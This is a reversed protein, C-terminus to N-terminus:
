VERLCLASVWDITRRLKPICDGPGLSRPKSDDGRGNKRCLYTHHLRKGRQAAQKRTVGDLFTRISRVRDSIMTAELASVDNVPQLTWGRRGLAIPLAFLGSRLRHAALSTAVSRSAGLIAIAISVAM